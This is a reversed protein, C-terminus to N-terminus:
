KSKLRAEAKARRVLPEVFEYEQWIRGRVMWGISRYRLDDPASLADGGILGINTISGHLMPFRNGWGHLQVYARM